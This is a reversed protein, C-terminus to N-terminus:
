KSAMSSFLDVIASLPMGSKSTRTAARRWSLPMPGEGNWAETVASDGPTEPATGPAATWVFDPHLNQYWEGGIIEHNKNLELDYLYRVTHTADQKESDSKAHSPDTEVVYTVDMAIGVVYSAEKSRYRSFKDKSFDAIAIMAGDLKASPENTQPNFYSYKYASVPQNWVEYDFTADIVLSRKAIGLQNVVGMHWSGPNTDFCEKDQIRGNADTKPNKTGCRGGILPTQPSAKAWLLSSLAKIDSPYFTLETKGDAALMKVPRVPRAVMYSATAWGHCIGMWTEVKGDVSYYEEGDAWMAQTLSGKKDGVLLDYKESPSLKDIAKADGTKFIELFDNGSKHVYTQNKKWDNNKPFKNDAYRNGLVGMYIPWYNDSWPQSQLTTSTLEAKEIEELTRLMSRPKDVLNAADDDAEFPSKGPLVDRLCIRVGEHTTCFDGRKRDKALVFNGSEIDDQSFASRAEVPNGARDWKTPKRKMFTATDADFELLSKKIDDARDARASLSLVISAASFVALIPTFPKSNKNM